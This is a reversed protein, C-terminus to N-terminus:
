KDIKIYKGWAWGIVRTEVKFWDGDRDVIKVRHGNSLPKAVKDGDPKSRINLFSSVKVVGDEASDSDDREIFKKAVWGIIEQEVEYWDGVKSIVLVKEDKQLQEAAKEYTSSPGTRFNLVSTVTAITGLPLKERVKEPETETPIWVGMKKRLDELPFAPGPDSKRTPAIEEHGLIYKITPYQKILLECIEHVKKVQEDTYTHWYTSRVRPYNRHKGEFVYKEDVVQKFSNIFKGDVKSLYGDNAVEIGISYKNFTTRNEDPLKYGSNGAHWTIVNLKALQIVQGERGVVMHASARSQSGCLWKAAGEANNGGTYHIIITDPAGEAYEGSIRPTQTFKVKDGVLKHNKIEM